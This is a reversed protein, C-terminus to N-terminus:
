NLNGRGKVMIGTRVALTAAIQKLCSEGLKFEERFFVQPECDSRKTTGDTLPDHLQFRPFIRYLCFDRSNFRVANSARGESVILAQM